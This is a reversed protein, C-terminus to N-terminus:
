VAVCLASPVACCVTRPSSMAEACRSFKTLASCPLTAPTSTVLVEPAGPAEDDITMLPMLEILLLLWGSMITSPRGISLRVSLVPTSAESLLAVDANLLRLTSKVLRAASRFGCSM